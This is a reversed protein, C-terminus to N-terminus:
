GFQVLYGATIDPGLIAMFVWSIGGALLDGFVLGLFFPMLQRYLRAGGLRHVIAKIIWTLFFPGWLCYGYQICAVYGIPNLPIRLWRWRAAVLGITFVTAVMMAIGSPTDPTSGSNIMMSAETWNSVANSVNYGGKTTGGHLVLAGFRYYSDLNLKYAWVCALVFAIMMAPAIIRPKLKIDFALKENEAQYGAQAAFYGDTLWDFNTLVAFSKIGGRPMLQRSGLFYRLVTTHGGFYGWMTPLGAEARLRAYVLGFGIFMFFYASAHSPYAGMYVVWFVIAAFGLLTGVLATRHGLAAQSDDIERDGTFTKRAIVALEHRGVWFLVLMMGLYAGASQALTHPFGPTATVGFLDSLLRLTPQLLFFFWGSFLIDLPVFWALGIVQPRHFFTVGRYATWPYETFIQQGLYYRDMLATVAPNYSHAVNLVHHFLVIMVGVWVMVNKFFPKTSGPAEKEVISLPIFLLPFRLRENETWQKRFLTLLCLSTFFLLGMFLTWMLLPYSWARWPVSGDDSGEYMTRIAEPDQPAFWKPVAEALMAYNNDPGAFYTAATASPLMSETVGFSVPPIAIVLVMYVFLLEQKTLARAKGILRGILPAVAVLLLLCFVAPVPPVSLLYVPAYLLGPAQVLSAQHMWWVAVLSLLVALIVARLSLYWV